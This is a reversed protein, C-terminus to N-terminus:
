FLARRIILDHHVALLYSAATMKSNNITMVAAMTKNLVGRPGKSGFEVFETPVCLKVV